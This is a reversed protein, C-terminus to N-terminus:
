KKVLKLNEDFEIFILERKFPTPMVWALLAWGGNKTATTKYGELQFQIFDDLYRTIMKGKKLTTLSIRSRNDGGSQIINSYLIADGNSELKEADARTSILFADVQNFDADLIILFPDQDSWPYGFTRMVNCLVAYGGNYPVISYINRPPVPVLLNNNVVSYGSENIKIIGEPFESVSAKIRMYSDPLSSPDWTANNALIPWFYYARNVVHGGSVTIGPNPTGSYEIDHINLYERSQLEASSNVDYNILNFEGDRGQDRFSVMLQRNNTIDWVEFPVDVYDQYAYDNPPVGQAAGPPVLFRHAKQTKGPGFRIEVSFSINGDVGLAGNAYPYAGYVIDLIIESQAIEFNYNFENSNDPGLNLFYYEGNEGTILHSFKNDPGNATFGKSFLLQGTASYFSYRFVRVSWDYNVTAFGGNKIQFFGFNTINSNEFNTFLKKGQGNSMNLSIINNRLVSSYADRSYILEDSNVVHMRPLELGDWPHSGQSTVNDVTAPSGDVIPFKKTTITTVVGNVDMKVVVYEEHWNNAFYTPWWDKGTLSFIYSGDPQQKFYLIDPDTGAYPRAGVQSNFNQLQITVGEVTPNMKTQEESCGSFVIAWASILVYTFFRMGKM